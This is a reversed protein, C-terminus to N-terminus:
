KVKSKKKKLVVLVIGAILALGAVGIGIWLYPSTLETGTKIVPYNILHYMEDPVIYKENIEVVITEDTRVFGELTEIERIIYKGKKLDTIRVIGNEDSVYEGLITGNEDELTFKVGPLPNGQNDTKVFEYHNPINCLHYMEEPIIYKEDVVVKITEDTRVFGEPTEIERIIYTGKELFKVHVIGDSGSVFEGVNNGKLDELVFRAGALPNGKTDTKVFEYHNPINCLHYMEEPVVYKEDVVVKITEDTRLFGEPTEIERIIYTGPTMNTVHVIGDSGSVFEGLANGETDELVFRAGALPNGKTDTKVFEYHNPIDICTVPAPETWDDDVHFEMDEIKNYGEPVKTERVIWDGYDFKTFVFVGNEDSKVVEVVKGTEKEILSFEVGELYKGSTEVKIYQVRKLKNVWTGVAEEPSQTGEAINLTVVKRSVLYADSPPTIEKVTYVGRTLKRFEFRGNEDSVATQLLEDDKYLGFTAGALPKNDQDVKLGFFTNENNKVVPPEDKSNVFTGDVVFTKCISGERIDYGDAVKTEEITFEGYPIKEFVVLGDADSVATMVAEHDKNYLTFEAGEINDGNQADTKRFQVRTYDDRIETTGIIEGEETVEFEMIAVNLEYGEPALIEKFTYKGPVVRIDPIEGNEDTYERYIVNGEEDYVEILAGPVTEDGTITTKTLTVLTEVPVNIIADKLEVKILEQDALKNATTLSANFKEENLVYNGVTRLEKIYYEGHPVYGSFHILGNSDSVAVAMCTDAPKTDGELCTIANKNYLGFVLGEAPLTIEKQHVMGNELEDPVIYMKVKMASLDVKLYRNGATVKETVIRTKDDKYKLEVDYEVDDFVYGDPASKEVVYYKGLPLEKPNEDAGNATTTITDVLEDKEYWVTGEKGVIDERAYIEFVCDALFREEFVPQYYEFGEKTQKQFGVLQLGTKDIQIHGKVPTDVIEVPLILQGTITTVGEADLKAPTMNVEYDGEPILYNEPAKIETVYYTGCALTEPMTTKGTEDTIYTDVTHINPTTVTQTIYNGEADKVKFEVGSLTITRGTEEDIKIIQIFARRAFNNVIEKFTYNDIKLDEKFPNKLAYAEVGTIQKVTYTGYPLEKTKCQGNEDTVVLDREYERAEDYTGASSLFVEFTAGEEPRELLADGTHIQNDGLFKTLGLRSYKVHNKKLAQYHVEEEFSQQAAASTDVIIEEDSSRYGEPASIEVIKYVGPWLLPTTISAEEGETKISEIVTDGNHFIVNGQRDLIDVAATIKFEAGTLM